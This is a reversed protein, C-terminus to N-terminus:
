PTTDEPRRSPLPRMSPPPTTGSDWEPVAESPAHLAADLGCTCPKRPYTPTRGTRRLRNEWAEADCEEDHRLWKALAERSEPAPHPSPTRLAARIDMDLRACGGSDENLLSPCEGWVLAHLEALLDLAERGEPAPSVPQRLAALVADAADLLVEVDERYLLAKKSVNGALHARMRVLRSGRGPGLNEETLRKAVQALGERVDPAPPEPSPSRLATGAKEIAEVLIAEEAVDTDHVFQDLHALVADRLLTYSGHWFAADYGAVVPVPTAPPEPSPSRLAAELETIRERQRNIIDLAKEYERDLLTKVRPGDLSGVPVPPAPPTGAEPQWSPREARSEAAIRNIDDWYAHREPEQAPAAPAPLPEPQHVKASGCKWCPVEDAPLGEDHCNPCKFVGM